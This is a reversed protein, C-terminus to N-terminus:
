PRRRRKRRKRPKERPMEEVKKVKARKVKLNKQPPLQQRLKEEPRKRKSNNPLIIETSRPLSGDRDEVSLNQTISRMMTKKSQYIAKKPKTEKSTQTLM